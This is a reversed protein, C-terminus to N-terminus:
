VKRTQPGEKHGRQAQSAQDPESRPAKPSANPSSTRERRRMNQAFNALLFLAGGIGFAALSGSTLYFLRDLINRRNM